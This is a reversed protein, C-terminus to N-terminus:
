TALTNVFTIWPFPSGQKLFRRRIRAAWHKPNYRLVGGCQAVEEWTHHHYFSLMTEVGKGSYYQKTRAKAATAEETTYFPSDLLHIKGHPTLLASLREITAKFDPFYQVCANLTIIDFSRLALNADFIDGYAFSCRDSSFLRAAQQLEQQNIDMGLVHAHSYRTLQHTFWGNGCGLDLIHMDPQLDAHRFFQNMTWERWQWEQYQPHTQPLIPLQGVIQDTYVRGECTRVTLYAEEFLVTDSATLQYVKNLAEFHQLWDM